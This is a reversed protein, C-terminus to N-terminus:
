CPFNSIHKEFSINNSAEPLQRAIIIFSATGVSSGM